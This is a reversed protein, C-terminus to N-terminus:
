ARRASPAAASARFNKRRHFLQWLFLRWGKPRIMLRECTKCLDFGAPAETYFRTMPEGNAYMGGRYPVAGVYAGCLSNLSRGKVKGHTSSYYTFATEKTAHYEASSPFVVFGRTAIM